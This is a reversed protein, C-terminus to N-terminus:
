ELEEATARQLESRNPYNTFVFKGFTTDTKVTLIDIIGCTSRNKRQLICEPHLKNLNRVNLSINFHSFRNGGTFTFRLTLLFYM